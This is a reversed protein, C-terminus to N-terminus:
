QTEDDSPTGQVNAHGNSVLITDELLPDSPDSRNNKATQVNTSCESHAKM